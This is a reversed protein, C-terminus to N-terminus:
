CAAALQTQSIPNFRVTGQRVWYSLEDNEKLMALSALGRSGAESWAMGKNKQRSAVLHDNLGEVRASSNILGAIKRAAFCYLYERRSELYVITDKVKSINRIMKSEIAELIEIAGDVKGFWLKKMISKIVEQKYDRNERGCKLGMSLNESIRRCIHYWDLYQKLSKHFGFIEPIANRIEKAGDSFTVLVRNELLHHKLMFALAIMLGERTNDAEIVYRQGLCFVAVTTNGVTKCSKSGTKGNVDRHEKQRDVSVDDIQMVVAQGPLEIAELAGVLNPYNPHGQLFEDFMAQVQNKVELAIEESAEPTKPLVAGPLPQITDPDFKADQLIEKAQKLLDEHVENGWRQSCDNITRPSFAICCSRMLIRNILKAAEEFSPVEQCLNIIIEKLESSWLRIHSQLSSTDIQNNFRAILRGVMSEIEIIRQDNDIQNEENSSDLNNNDVSYLTINMFSQLALSSKKRLKEELIDVNSVYENINKCESFVNSTPLSDYYCATCTMEKGSAEDIKGTTVYYTKKKYTNEVYIGIKDIQNVRSALWVFTNYNEKNTCYKVFKKIRKILQKAYSSGNNIVNYWTQKIKKFNPCYSIFSSELPLYPIQTSDDKMNVIFYINSGDINPTNLITQVFDNPNQLIGPERNSFSDLSQCALCLLRDDDRDVVTERFEIDSNDYVLLQEGQVPVPSYSSDSTAIVLIQVDSSLYLGRIENKAHRLTQPLNLGTSQSPNLAALAQRAASPSIHLESSLSKANPSTSGEQASLSLSQKVKEIVPTGNHGCRGPRPADSLLETIGGAEYKHRYTTVTDPDVSFDAAVEKCRKGEALELIIGCRKCEVSGVPSSNMTFRLKAAASDELVLIPTTRPM